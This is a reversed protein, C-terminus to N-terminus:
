GWQKRNELERAEYACAEGGAAVIGDLITTHLHHLARNLHAQQGHGVHDALANAQRRHVSPSAELPANYLGHAYMTSQTSYMAWPTSWSGMRYSCFLRRQVADFAFGYRIVIEAAFCEFMGFVVQPTLRGRGGHATTHLSGVAM